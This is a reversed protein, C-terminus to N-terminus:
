IGTGPARRNRLLYLSAGFIFFAVAIIQNWTIGGLGFIMEPEYDRVFELFFRFVAEFMFYLAFTQGSFSRRRNVGRLIFFLLLGFGSAYLQTPHIATEPFAWGAPSDAPFVVGLFSDTPKGFCCGNLFCGIRAIFKGFALAVVIADAYDFMAMKRRHMYWLGVIVALIIGGYLNMGAIGFQGNAGFPNIIKLPDSAFDSWHFAVFALRAGIIGLFSALFGLNFLKDYDLRLARAEYKLLWLGIFFSLTLAVGWARIPFSGIHFLEQCMKRIVGKPGALCIM